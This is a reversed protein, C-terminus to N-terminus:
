SLCFLLITSSCHFLVFTANTVFILINTTIYTQLSEEANEIFNVAAYNSICNCCFLISSIISQILLPTEYSKKAQSSPSKFLKRGLAAALGYGLGFVAHIANSYITANQSEHSFYACNQSFWFESLCEFNFLVYGNIIFPYLILASHIIALKLGSWIQSHQKWFFLATFRNFALLTNWPGAFLTTYWQILTFAIKIPASTLYIFDLDFAITSIINYFYGIALIYYYASSFAPTKIYFKYLLMIFCLIELATCVNIVIFTLIPALEAIIIAANPISKNM